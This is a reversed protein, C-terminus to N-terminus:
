SQEKELGVYSGVAVYMPGTCVPNRLPYFFTATSCSDKNRHFFHWRFPFFLFGSSEQLFLCGLGLPLHPLLPIPTYCVKDLHHVEVVIVHQFPCDKAKHFSVIFPFWFMTHLQRGAWLYYGACIHFLLWLSTPMRTLLHSPHSCKPPIPHPSTDWWKLHLFYLCIFIIINHGRIAASSTLVCCGVWLCTTVSPFLVSLLFPHPPAPAPNHICTFSPPPRRSMM